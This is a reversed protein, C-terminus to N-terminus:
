NVYTISLTTDKIYYEKNENLKIKRYGGKNFFFIKLNYVVKVEGKNKLHGKM